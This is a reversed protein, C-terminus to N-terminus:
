DVGIAWEVRFSVDGLMHRLEDQAQTGARRAVGIRRRAAEAVACHHMPRVPDRLSRHKASARQEV